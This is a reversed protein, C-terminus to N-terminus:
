GSSLATGAAVLVVWTNGPALAIPHGRGDKLTTGTTASQRAWTGDVRKGNRFVAVRGTGISHTYQSVSGNVDVDKPNATIRCFQVIVNASADPRGDSAHQLIGNILRVYRGLSANWDFRVPTTGVTTRVTGAVPDAAVATPDALFQWGISQAGASKVRGSMQALNAVTNYPLNRSHDLSFGADGRDHIVPNLTSAYLTPLADGGGGSAVLTIRGYQTLLEPDSARVSRVPEVAPKNTAFVALLRSLGGEAQEIYVVDAQDIGHQPRGSATDDVKVAIVPGSPPPALGTLPNVLGAVPSPSAPAASASPARSTPTGSVNPVKAHHGGCATLGVALVVVATLRSARPMSSM